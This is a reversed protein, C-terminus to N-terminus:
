RAMSAIVNRERLTRGTLGSVIFSVYVDSIRALDDLRTETIKEGTAIAKAREVEKCSALVIKRLHEAYGFNGFHAELSAPDSPDYGPLATM